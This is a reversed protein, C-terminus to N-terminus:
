PTTVWSMGIELQRRSYVLCIDSKKGNQQQLICIMDSISNYFCYYFVFWLTLKSVVINGWWIGFPKNMHLIWYTWTCTSATAWKWQEKWAWQGIRLKRTHLVEEGTGLWTCGWAAITPTVGAKLFGHELWPVSLLTITKRGWSASRFIFRSCLSM